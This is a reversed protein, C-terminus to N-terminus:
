EGAFNPAIQNLALWTFGIGALPVLMAGVPFYNM